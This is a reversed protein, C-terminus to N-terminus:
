QEGFTWGRVVIVLAVADQRRVARHRFIEWWATEPVPLVQGFLESGNVPHGTGVARGAALVGGPWRRRAPGSAQRSRGAPLGASVDYIGYPVAKDLSQDLFDHTRTAPVSEAM